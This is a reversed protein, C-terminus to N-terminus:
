RRSRGASASHSTTSTPAASTECHGEILVLYGPNVKLWAANSELTKADGPRIDSRDFDFYITKVNDNATFDRM